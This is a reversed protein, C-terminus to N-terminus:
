PKAKYLTRVVTTQEDSHGDAAGIVAQVPDGGVFTMM